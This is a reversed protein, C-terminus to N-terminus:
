KTIYYIIVILTFFFTISLGLISLIFTLKNKKSEKTKQWRLVSYLLSMLAFVGGALLISLPLSILAFFLFLNDYNRKKKEEKM